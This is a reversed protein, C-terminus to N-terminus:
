FATDLVAPTALAVQAEGADLSLFFEFVLRRVIDQVDSARKVLVRTQLAIVTTKM